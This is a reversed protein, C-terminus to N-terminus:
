YSSKKIKYAIAEQTLNSQAMVCVEAIVKIHKDYSYEIDM